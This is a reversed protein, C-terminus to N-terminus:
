YLLRIFSIYTQVDHVIVQHDNAGSFIKQNENDWALAFVNSNHQTKMEIPEQETSFVDDNISWLLVRKCDGALSWFLLCQKVIILDHLSLSLYPFSRVLYWTIPTKIPFSLRMSAVIIVRSTKITCIARM